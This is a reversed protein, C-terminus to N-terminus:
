QSRSDASIRELTLQTEADFPTCLIIRIYPYGDPVCSGQDFVMKGYVPHTIAHLGYPRLNFDPLRWIRRFMPSIEELRRILRNCGPDDSHRSYDYRLRGIMHRATSELEAATLHPMPRTLLGELLNRETKPLTAYDFFVLTNLRNWALVDWFMSMALAPINLTDLMRQIEAPVEQPVEHRMRPARHQVLSFLYIREDESMRLTNSVRDLVDDSVRMARGQELWTYWSTSVGSLAAADERRLGATRKRQSV